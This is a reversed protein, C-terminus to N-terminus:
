YKVRQNYFYLGGQLDFASLRTLTEENFKEPNKSVHALVKNPYFLINDAGAKKAAKDSGFKKLINLYDSVLEPNERFIDLYRLAKNKYDSPLTNVYSRDESSLLDGKILGEEVLEEKIEKVDASIEEKLKDLNLNKKIAEIEKKINLNLDELEKNSFANPDAM